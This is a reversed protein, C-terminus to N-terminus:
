TVNSSRVGLANGAERQDDEGWALTWKFEAIKHLCFIDKQIYAFGIPSGKQINSGIMWCDDGDWWIGFEGKKFYHRGNISESQMSYNGYINRTYEQTDTEYYVEIGKRCLDCDM